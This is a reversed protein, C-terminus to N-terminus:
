IFTANLVVSGSYFAKDDLICSIITMIPTRLFIFTTKSHAVMEEFIQQLNKSCLWLQIMMAFAGFIIGQVLCLGSFAM